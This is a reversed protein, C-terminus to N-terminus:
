EKLRALLHRAEEVEITDGYELVLEELSERAARRDGLEDLLLLAKRLLARAALYEAAPNGAMESYIALAEGAEDWEELMRATMLMIEGRLEEDETERAAHRFAETAADRDGTRRLFFAKGLMELTKPEDRGYHKELRLVDIAENTKEFAHSGDALKRYSSVAEEIRGLYFYVNGLEFALPARMEAPLPDEDLERLEELAEELEGDAILARSVRLRLGTTVDHPVGEEEMRRYWALAASPDNRGSLSLDGLLEYCNIKIAKEPNEELIEHLMDISEEWMGREALERALALRLPAPSGETFSRAHELVRRALGDDGSRAALGALRILEGLLESKEREASCDDILSFAEEYELGAVRLDVLLPFLWSCRADPDYDRVFAALRDISGMARGIELCRREVYSIAAPHTELFVLYEGVAPLYEGQALLLEAMERSFLREDGLERRGRRLLDVAEGTMGNSRYLTSLNRYLEKSEPWRRLSERGIELCEERRGSKYLAQLYFSATERDDPRAFFRTRLRAIWDDTRGAHRATRSMGRLAEANGPFREEIDLYLEFASRYEKSRELSVAEALEAELEGAPAPLPFCVALVALLAPLVRTRIVSGGNKWKGTM